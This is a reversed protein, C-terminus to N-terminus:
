AGANQRGAARTVGEAACPIGRLVFWSIIIGACLALGGAAIATRQVRRQASKIANIRKWKNIFKVQPIISGTKESEDLVEHWDSWYENNM